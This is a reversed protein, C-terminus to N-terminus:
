KKLTKSIQYFRPYESKYDKKLIFGVSIKYTGKPLVNALRIYNDLGNVNYNEDLVVVLRNNEFADIKVSLCYIDNIIDSNFLTIKIDLFEEQLSPITAVFFPMGSDLIYGKANPFKSNLMIRNFDSKHQSKLENIKLEYTQALAINELKMKLQTNVVSDGGVNFDYTHIIRVSDTIEKVITPDDPIIKNCARDCLLTIIAGVILWWVKKCWPNNQIWNKNKMNKVRLKLKLILM